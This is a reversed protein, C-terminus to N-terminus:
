GDVRVALSIYVLGFRFWDLRHLQVGVGSRDELLLVRLLTPQAERHVLLFFLGALLVAVIDVLPQQLSDTRAVSLLQGNIFSLLLWPVAPLLAEIHSVPQPAVPSIYSSAGLHAVGVEALCAFDYCRFRLVLLHADESGLGLQVHDIEQGDVDLVELWLEAFLGIVVLELHLPRQRKFAAPVPLELLHLARLGAHM